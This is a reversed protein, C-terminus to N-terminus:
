NPTIVDGSPLQDLPIAFGSAHFHGGGGTFRKAIESVDVGDKASRLSFIRKDAIDFYTVAFPHGIALENGIESALITTNLMPVQYGAVTAMRIGRGIARKVLKQEYALITKGGEIVDRIKNDDLLPLWIDFQLAYLSLGASFEKSQPLAWTWLDKDQIYKILLPVPLTPNFHQWAIMAGSRSMDFTCYDLNALAGEASKHHDLVILSKARRKIDITTERNYAFDVIYVTKGDIDPVPEGHNAAHFETLENPHERDLFVKLALAAGFGDPCSKHYIVFHHM